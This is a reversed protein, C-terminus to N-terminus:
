RDAVLARRRGRLTLVFSAVAVVVFIPGLLGISRADGEASTSFLENARGASWQAATGVLHYRDWTAGVVAIQLGTMLVLAGWTAGAGIQKLSAAAAFALVYVFLYAVPILPITWSVEDPDLFYMWMWDPAIAYSIMAIITFVLATFGGRYFSRSRWWAMRPAFGGFVLGILGLTPWDIIFTAIM